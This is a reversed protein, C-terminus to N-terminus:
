LIVAGPPAKRTKWDSPEGRNEAAQKARKLGKTMASLETTGFSELTEVLECTDRRVLWVESKWNKPGMKKSTRATGAWYTNINTTM